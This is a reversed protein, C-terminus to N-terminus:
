RKGEKNEIRLIFYRGSDVTRDVAGEDSVPCVAFVQNKEDLLVIVAISKKEIIKLKGTYNRHYSSSTILHTHRGSWSPVTPWDSARHGGASKLLPIKFVMVHPLQLLTREYGEDVEM